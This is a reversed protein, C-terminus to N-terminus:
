GLRRRSTLLLLGAITLGWVAAPEPVAAVGDASTFKRGNWINFDAVDVSGDANFDGGCWAPTNTFKNGNWANFDGVDVVGDLNADGLQYPNGSPLEAAGAEALWATLDADNVLGDGTLDFSATNSGSAIVAVLADVDACAYDGDNDFDGDVAPPEGVYVVEGATLMNPRNMDRYRFVLDEATGNYADGLSMSAMAGFTSERPLIAETLNFANSGGAEDWGEFVSDGAISGPDPGDVADFNQDDLSNWGVVDLSGATSSITYYNIDFSGTGPNMLTVEGTSRDVELTLVDPETLQVLRLDDFYFTAPDLGWDGDLGM